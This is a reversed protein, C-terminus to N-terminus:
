QSEQDTPGRWLDYYFHGAESGKWYGMIGGLVGGVVTLVPVAVPAAPGTFSGAIAGAGAGVKGFGWAGAWGVGIRAAERAAYDPDGTQLSRDIQTGLSYSDLAVGLVLAGKGVRELAVSTRAAANVSPRSRGSSEIIDRLAAETSMGAYKPKKLLERVTPGKRKASESMARGERSLLDRTANMAANREASAAEAARWLQELSAGPPQRYKAPLKEIVDLYHTIRIKSDSLVRAVAPHGAAVAMGVGTGVSLTTLHESSIEDIPVAITQGVQLSRPELENGLEANFELIREVPVGTRQSIEWVTTGPEVTVV